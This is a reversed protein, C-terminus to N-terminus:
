PDRDRPPPSGGRGFHLPAWVRAPDAVLNVFKVEAWDGTLEIASIGCTDVRLARFDRVDLRLAAALVMRILDGHSVACLRVGPAAAFMRTVADVARRQASPVAEGGPPSVLVPDRSFAAYAPDNLLDDYTRGEWTGFDLEVLDPEVTLPVGLATSVMEATESARPLPSTVVRAPALARLLPVIGRVQERGTASLAVPRRGMVRRARTWDTEGHRVLLL